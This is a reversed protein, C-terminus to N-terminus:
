VGDGNMSNEDALKGIHMQVTKKTLRFTSILTPGPMSIEGCFLGLFSELTAAILLCPEVEAYVDDLLGDPLSGQVHTQRALTMKVTMASSHGLHNEILALALWTVPRIADMVPCYGAAEQLHKVSWALNAQAKPTM